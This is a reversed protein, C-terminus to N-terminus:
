SMQYTFAGQLHGSSNCNQYNLDYSSGRHLMVFTGGFRFNTVLALASDSMINTLKGFSFVVSEHASNGAFPLGGINIGSSDTNDLGSDVSIQFQCHVARGIRTYTGSQHGYTPASDLNLFSPTWTGEEYHDLIESTNSAGSASTATQASFDIGKGSPFALGNASTEVQKTGDHYLEVAGDSIFKAAHETTNVLIDVNGGTTQIDLNGTGQERIVSDSGNHYIMLDSDAGFVLRDDTTSGSDGFNINKTNVDLNGGLQPSTDNVLDTALNTLGSGNGVFSTATCVGTAFIDGDSSLTVGSGVKASSTATLTTVIGTTIKTTGTSDIRLRETGNNNHITLIDDSGSGTTISNIGSISKPNVVTM